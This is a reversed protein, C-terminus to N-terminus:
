ARNKLDVGYGVNGHLLVERGNQGYTQVPVKRGETNRLLMEEGRQRHAHVGDEPFCGIGCSRGRDSGFDADM